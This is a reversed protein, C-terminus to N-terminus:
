LVNEIQELKDINVDFIKIHLRIGNEKGTGDFNVELTGKTKLTLIMRIIEIVIKM